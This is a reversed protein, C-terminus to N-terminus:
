ADDPTRRMLDLSAVFRALGQETLGRVFHVIAGRARNCSNCSAVINAHGNNGKVEDLHDVVIDKWDLPQACWYCDQTTGGLRDFLLARHEYVWGHPDTIPLDPRKVMVYGRGDVRRTIPPRTDLSNRRRLRTEHKACLRHKLSKSPTECGDIRCPDRGAQRALHASMSAATQCARTCYNRAKGRRREFTFEVLCRKCTRTEEGLYKTAM